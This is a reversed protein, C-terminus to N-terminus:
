HEIELAEKVKEVTEKSMRGSTDLKFKYIIKSLPVRRFYPSSRSMMPKWIGDFSGSYYHVLLVGVADPLSVIKGLCPQGPIFHEESVKMVVMDDVSFDNSTFKLQNKQQRKETPNVSEVVNPATRLKDKEEDVVQAVTGSAIEDGHQNVMSKEKVETRYGVTLSGGKNLVATMVTVPEKVNKSKKQHKTQKKKPSKATMRSTSKDPKNESSLVGRNVPKESRQVHVGINKIPSERRGIEHNTIENTLYKQLHLLNPASKNGPKLGAPKKSEPATADVHNASVNTNIPPLKLDSFEDRTFSQAREKGLLSVSVM